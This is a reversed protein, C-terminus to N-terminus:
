FDAFRMLYFLIDVVGVVIGMFVDKRFDFIDILRLVRWIKEIWLYSFSVEDYM